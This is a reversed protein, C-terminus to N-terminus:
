AEAQNPLAEVRTDHKHPTSASVLRGSLRGEGPRKTGPSRRVSVASREDFASDMDQSKRQNRNADCQIYSTTAAYTSM